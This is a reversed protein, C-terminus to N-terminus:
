REEMALLKAAARFNETAEDLPERMEAVKFHLQFVQLLALLLNYGIVFPTGDMSRRSSPDKSQSILRVIAVAKPHTEMMPQYYGAKILPQAVGVEQAMEVISKKSWSHHTKTKRCQKCDPDKCVSCVPVQYHAKIEEYKSDIERRWLEIERIQEETFFDKFHDELDSNLKHQDIWYFNWFSEAEEPHRQLYDATVIREFMGRLIKQAGTTLGNACLVVIESFDEWALIGLHYLVRGILDDDKGKLSSILARFSAQLSTVGTLFGKYKEAFEQQVNLDGVQVTIRPTSEM